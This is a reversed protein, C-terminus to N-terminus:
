SPVVLRDIEGIAHAIEAARFPKAICRVDRFSPPLHGANGTVFCFPISRARLREALPLSTTEHLDLDLLAFDLMSDSLTLGERLTRAWLCDAGTAEQVIDELDMAILPEDEVILIRM